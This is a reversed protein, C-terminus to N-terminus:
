GLRHADHLAVLDAGQDVRAIDDDGDAATSDGDHLRRGALIAPDLRDDVLVSGRRQKRCAEVGGEEDQRGPHLPHRDM